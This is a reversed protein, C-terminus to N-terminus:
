PRRTRPARTRRYPTTTVPRRSLRHRAPRFGVTTSDMSPLGVGCSPGSPRGPRGPSLVLVDRFYLPREGGPGEAEGGVWM